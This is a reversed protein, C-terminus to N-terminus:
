IEEEDYAGVYEYIEVSLNTLWYADLILLTYDTVFQPIIIIKRENLWLSQRYVETAQSTLGGIPYKQYCKLNGAFKWRKGSPILSQTRIVLYKSTFIIPCELVRIPQYGGYQSIEAVATDSWALQWKGFEQLETPISTM